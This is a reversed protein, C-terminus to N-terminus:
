VEGQPISSSVQLMACLATGFDRDFLGSYPLNLMEPKAFRRRVLSPL